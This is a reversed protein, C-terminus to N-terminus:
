VVHEANEASSSTFDQILDLLVELLQLFVDVTEVAKVAAVGRSARACLLQSARVFRDHM